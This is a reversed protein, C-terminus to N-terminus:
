KSREGGRPAAPQQARAVVEEFMLLVGVRVFEYLETFAFEATEDDEDGRHARSIEVLDEVFERSDESFTSVGNVSGAVLGLLFGECWETLASLRQEISETDGPQLLQFTLPGEALAYLADQWMAGVAAPLASEDVGGPLAQLVVDHLWGGQEAMPGRGIIWGCLHGHLEAPGMSLRADILDDALAEYDTMKNERSM